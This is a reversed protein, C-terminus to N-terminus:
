AADANKLTQLFDDVQGTLQGSMRAVAKANDMLDRTAQGVAQIADQTSRTLRILAEVGTNTQHANEAVRVTASVQEASAGSIAGIVAGLDSLAERMVCLPGAVQSSATM